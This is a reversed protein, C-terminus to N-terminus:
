DKSSYTLTIDGFEVIFDGDSLNNNSAYSITLIVPKYANKDLSNGDIGNMTGTAETGGVSVNLTIDNCAAAMLSDSTNSSDIANCVKAKSEGDVYNFTIDNLYAVYAGANHVYFTYSVSQGDETFKAYLDSITPSDGNNNITASGGEAGGSGVGTINTTVLSTASSSFVVRFSSADPKINVNSSITLTESFAAFGISVFGIFVALVAIYYRQKTRYRSMM